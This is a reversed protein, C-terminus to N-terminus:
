PYKMACKHSNQYILMICEPVIIRRVNRELTSILDTHQVLNLSLETSQSAEHFLLWKEELLNQLLLHCQDLVNNCTLGDFGSFECDM